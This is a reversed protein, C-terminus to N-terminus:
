RRLVVGRTRHETLRHEVQSKGVQDVALSEIPRPLNRDILIWGRIVDVDGVTVVQQGSYGLIAHKRPVVCFSERVALGGVQDEPLWIKVVGRAIVAGLAQTVWTGVGECNGDRHRDIARAVQIDDIAGVVAHEFVVIWKLSEHGTRTRSKRRGTSRRARGSIGDGIGYEAGAAAKDSVAAVRGIVGIQQVVGLADCEIRFVAGEVDREGVRRRHEFVIWRQRRHRALRRVEREAGAVAAKL